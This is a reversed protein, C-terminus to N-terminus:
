KKGEAQRLAVFFFGAAVLDTAALFLRLAVPVRTAVVAIAIGGLALVAILIRLTRKQRAIREAPTM